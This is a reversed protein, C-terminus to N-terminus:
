TNARSIAKMKKRIPIGACKWISTQYGANRVKEALVEVDIITNFNQRAALFALRLIAENRDVCNEVRLPKQTCRFKRTEKSQRKYFIAVDKARAMTRNYSQLEPAVKDDYCQPCYRERELQSPISELFSFQDTSVNQVCM